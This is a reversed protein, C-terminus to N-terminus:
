EAAAREREERERARSARDTALKARADLVAASGNAWALAKGRREWEVDRCRIPEGQRPHFQWDEILRIRKSSRLAAVLAGLTDVKHPPLATAFAAFAAGGIADTELQLGYPVGYGPLVDWEPQTADGIIRDSEDILAHTPDNWDRGVRDLRNRQAYIRWVRMPYETDETSFRLYVSAYEVGPSPEKVSARMYLAIPGSM